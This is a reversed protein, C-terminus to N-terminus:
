LYLAQPQDTIQLTNIVEDVFNYSDLIHELPVTEITEAKWGVKEPKSDIEKKTLNSM